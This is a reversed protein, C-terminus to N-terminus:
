FFDTMTAMVVQDTHPILRISRFYNPELLIEGTVLSVVGAYTPKRRGPTDTAETLFFTAIYNSTRTDSM